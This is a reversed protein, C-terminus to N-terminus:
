KLKVQGWDSHFMVKKETILYKEWYNSSYITPDDLRNQIDKRVWALFQSEPLKKKHSAIAKAAVVPSALALALTKIFDSRKM